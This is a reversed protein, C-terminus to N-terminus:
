AQAKPNGPNAFASLFEDKSIKNNDGQSLIEWMRTKIAEESMKQTDESTTTNVDIQRKNFLDKVLEVIMKMYHHNGGIAHQVAAGYVDSLNKELYKVRYREVEDMFGKQAKWRSLTEPAYEYKKAWGNQTRPMRDKTPTALWVMFTRQDTNWAM